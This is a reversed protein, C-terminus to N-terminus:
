FWRGTHLGYVIGSAAFTGSHLLYNVGTATPYAMLREVGSRWNFDTGTSANPAFSLSTRPFSGSAFAAPMPVAQFTNLDLFIQQATFCIQLGDAFRTYSGSGNTGREIISGTPVGGSQSVPGVISVPYGSAKQYTSCRWVGAGESVFEGTDGPRTLINAGGPLILSALNHALTPAGDFRVRRTVGAPAVGLSAITANGTVAVYDGTAASLDTTTAAPIDAGKKGINGADASFGLNSRAGPADPAGTGGATLPRAANADQVFDDVVANFKASEITTNPVATTGAPKSYVGQGNRPM